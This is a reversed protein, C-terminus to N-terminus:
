TKPSIPKTVVGTAVIRQGEHCNFNAGESIRLKHFEVMERAVVFMHADYTGILPQDEPVPRGDPDIFYPWIM